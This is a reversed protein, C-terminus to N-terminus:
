LLKVNYRKEFQRCAGALFLMEVNDSDLNARDKRDLHGVESWMRESPASTAPTALCIRAVESLLPYSSKGITGWWSLCDFHINQEVPIRKYKEIEALILMRTHATCDAQQALQQEPAPINNVNNRHRNFYNTENRLEERLQPTPAPAPATTVIRENHIPRNQTVSNRHPLCVDDLKGNVKLQLAYDVLITYLLDQETEKLCFLDKTRL